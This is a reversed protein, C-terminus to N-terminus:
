PETRAPRQEALLTEGGIDRFTTRAWREFRGTGDDPLTRDFAHFWLRADAIRQGASQARVAVQFDDPRMSEVAATLEIEDGPFAHRRFKARDILTLLPFRAFGLTAVLLWGATQAMAETILVGPVVPFGPFHDAFMEDDPHFTKRGVARKGPELAVLRDVFVFRM